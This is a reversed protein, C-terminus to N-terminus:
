RHNVRQHLQKCLCLDVVILSEDPGQVMGVKNLAARVTRVAEASDLRGAPLDGIVTEDQMELGKTSNAYFLARACVRAHEHFHDFDGGQSGFHDIRFVM